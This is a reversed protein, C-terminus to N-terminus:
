RFLKIAVGCIIAIAFSLLTGVLVYESKHTDKEGYRLISKAALLFGVASFQGILIFTLTLVRETIGILKGANPLENETISQISQINSARLIEGILINAPKLCILYATILLLISSNISLTFVPQLEFYHNFGTVCLSIILLHIGQDIFFWHRAIWNKKKIIKAKLGDIFYHTVAIILSAFVFLFQFSLVFSTVFVIVAHWILFKSKFGYTNKDKALQESQLFYDALIHAIFQLLLLQYLNM